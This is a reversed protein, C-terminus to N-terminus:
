IEAGFSPIFEYGSGPARTVYAVEQHNGSHSVGLFQSGCDLKPGRTNKQFGFSRVAEHLGDSQYRATCGPHILLDDLQQGILQDIPGSLVGPIEQGLSLFPDEHSDESTKRIPLNAVVGAERFASHFRHHL